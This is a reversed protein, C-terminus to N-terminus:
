DKSSPQRSTWKRADTQKGAMTMIQSMRRYLLPFESDKGHKILREAYRQVDGLYRNLERSRKNDASYKILTGYARMTAGIHHPYDNIVEQLYDTGKELENLKFHTLGLLGIALVLKDEDGRTFNLSQELYLIAERLNNDRSLVQAYNMHSEHNYPNLKFLESYHYKVAEYNRLHRNLAALEFHIKWDANGSQVLPERRAIVDRPTGVQEKIQEKRRTTFELLEEVNSQNSFPPQSIMEFLRDMLQNTEHNPFGIWHTTETASLAKFNASPNIQKLIARSLETAMIYNGSFDFHVHEHLLNWGPSYPASARDFAKLNDVFSVQGKNMESAVRNIINNIETSSRFRLTDLDLAREFHTRAKAYQRTNEYAKALRFHSDAYDPDIAIAAELSQIASAWNKNALQTNAQTDLTQWDSMQNAALDSRNASGFPASHRLNVPVSSLLVHIGKDNLIQIIDRLNTKYHDYVDQLRPDDHTVNYQTFM